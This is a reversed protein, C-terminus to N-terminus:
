RTTRLLCEQHHTAIGDSAVMASLVEYTISNVIVRMQETIGVDATFLTYDAIVVEAGVKVERNGIGMGSASVLRCPEDALFPGWTKIPVNYDDVEDSTFSQITCVDILLCAFSL